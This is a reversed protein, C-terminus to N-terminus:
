AFIKDTFRTALRVYRTLNFFGALCCYGLLWISVWGNFILYDVGASNSINKIATSMALVPGTSGVICM